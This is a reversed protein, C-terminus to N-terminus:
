STLHLTYICASVFYNLIETKPIESIERYQKQMNMCNELTYIICVQCDDCCSIFVPCSEAPLYSLPIKRLIRKPLNISQCSIAPAAACVCM